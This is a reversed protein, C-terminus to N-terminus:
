KYLVPIYSIIREFFAIISSFLGFHRSTEETKTNVVTFSDFCEDSDTKYSTVNITDETFTLLSYSAEQLPVSHVIFESNETDYNSCKGGSASGAEFYVTGLTSIGGKYIPYTRSYFHNHGSLVLDIDFKDFLDKLTGACLKNTFEDACSSYAGHHLMIVRWTADPYANLADSVTKKHSPTIINNSDLVIFVANGYSFYYDNGIANHGSEGFYLEFLPSYFDHNGATPAFPINKLSKASFLANYQSLSFGDNVQDGACLILEANNEAAREVTREWGYADDQVAKESNDGSRGLQPDACFMATFSPTKTDVSFTGSYTKQDATYRYTYKGDKLDILEVKNLVGHLMICSQPIINFKNIGDSYTFTNNFDNSLWTFVRDNEDKGPNQWIKGAAATRENWDSLWEETASVPNAAFATASLSLIFIFCMILALFRKM